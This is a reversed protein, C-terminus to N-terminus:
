RFFDPSVELDDELIIVQKADKWVFMYIYIYSYIAVYVSMNYM